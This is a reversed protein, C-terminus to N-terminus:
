RDGGEGQIVGRRERDELKDLNLQAVGAMDVGIEDCIAAIYWLVDGLEKILQRKRDGTLEGNDDRIIKKAHDAVEGAEGPLGLFPYCAPENDDRGPYDATRAALKQYQDFNIKGM